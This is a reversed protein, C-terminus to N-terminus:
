PGAGAVPFSIDDDDADNDGGANPTQLAAIQGQLAGVKDELAGLRGQLATVQAQLDNTEDSM